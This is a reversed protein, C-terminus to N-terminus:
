NRRGEKKAEIDYELLQILDKMQTVSMDDCLDRVKDSAEYFDANTM